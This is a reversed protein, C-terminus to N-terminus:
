YKVPSEVKWWSPLLRVVDPRAFRDDMLYVVGQDSQTRIVRGAAQVVKRIGPFLYTYDYGVAASFTANMCQMMHNNVPNLPPLGLTAIFAGILSKGPLDIGEAFAGGLVAFGIGQSTASFNALFHEREQEDMRRSQVWIPMEPNQASFRDVVQQLYEFSSFFALYNGPMTTYERAILAVIPAISKARDQYRTSINSVINVSLQDASFPSQVDIWATDAPLGLTDSYFHSPTLTASFLVVSRASAFRQALFPAPIINRLCIVTEQGKSSSSNQAAKTIDCLSPAPPHIDEQVDVDLHSESTSESKSQSASDFLAILHAFHLMDFYYHLLRSGTEIPNENLYLSITNIAQQLAHSFAAPIVPYVQYSANQSKNLSNWQRNLKDLSKKIEAPASRRVINFGIQDLEATYMKRAREVLDHAEDVLVTVQWQNAVTLGYLMANLDFYYNYDGVVIDSWRVMDQSLYYPCIQHELAVTRLAAKDMLGITVAAKRAMPLRDYFGKALPCSDGHCAKDPHECAKDRAVLELVRLPLTPASKDILTIAELALRRGSTKAALFFLKDLGQRPWAKLTPFITGITKGIGTPAQVMLCRGSTTARYVDEALARQGPRFDAHPFQLATLAQDRAARHALEHASWALFRECQEEFFGKLAAASYAQVLVTEQESAIDFYVLAVRLESLEYKQCLLWGYIKTQAWHLQRHNDPMRNLDGRFTKYEELQNQAPNYGDARGVVRLNQMDGTLTIEAQYSEAGIVAAAVRRSRIIAHGAIGEQATPSPTFRLDLDGEKATFECLDRVAVKYKVGGQM